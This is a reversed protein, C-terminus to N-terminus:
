KGSYHKNFFKKYKEVDKDRYFVPYNDSSIAFFSSSERLERTFVYDSKRIADYYAMVKDKGRFNSVSIMQRNDDILVANISLNDLRYNRTNFDSIRVRTADVDILNQNVILVFFHNENPSFTYISPEEQKVAAKTEEDEFGEIGFTSLMGQAMPILDSSPYSAIFQRLENVLTDQNHMGGMALTRLYAFKPLLPSDPYTREAENGYIVVMRFQNSRFANYADEYLAAARQKEQEQRTFYEPDSLIMAYESDPFRQIIINRYQEAKPKNEELMYLTYLHYLANLEQEHEPFRTLFAEFAEASRPYDRFGERFVYALQFMAESILRNSAEMKEPTNPIDRLYTERKLPDDARGGEKSDLTDNETEPIEAIDFSYIRRDSLRWNDELKRRGWKRTFDSFGFSVAQPNYFYWGGGTVQQLMGRSPDRGPMPSFGRGAMAMEQEEQQQREQEAKHEAILQDIIENREAEPMAALRQLSDQAEITNMHGVLERLTNTKRDLRAFDPHDYQMVQTTTDYYAYAEKYKPIEFYLDALKRASLAKQFDNSVSSAVSKRLLRYAASDNNERLAIHAMAYYIQDQYEQNRSDRLLKNLEAVLERSNGSTVDFAQARSIRANFTMEYGPREKIVRTFYRNAQNYNKEQLHIQALIFYMRARLDKDRSLEAAKRLHPKAEDYNELAMYHEAFVVPIERRLNRPFDQRRVQNQLGELLTISREFEKLKIATRAQWLMANFRIPQREYQRSVFEFTQRANFYDQKYFYAKGILMYSDPVRRVRERREFFMSHKQVVKSGKEIARDMHMNISQVQQLTGYDKVPLIKTYDTKIQNDLERLGQKYAEYGNWYPNYHATLNHFARRTATNKKTSCSSIATALVLLIISLISISHIRAKLTLTNQKVEM